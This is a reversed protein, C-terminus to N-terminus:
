KDNEKFYHLRSCIAREIRSKIHQKEEEGAATMTEAEMKWAYSAIEWSDSTVFLMHTWCFTSSKVLAFSPGTLGTFVRVPFVPGALARWNPARHQNQNM